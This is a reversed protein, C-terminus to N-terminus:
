EPPCGTVIFWYTEVAGDVYQAVNHFEDCGGGGSFCLKACEEHIGFLTAYYSQGKLLKAVGLWWGGHM